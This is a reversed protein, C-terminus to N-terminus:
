GGLRGGDPRTFVDGDDAEAADAHRRQLPHHVGTRPIHEDDFGGLPFV